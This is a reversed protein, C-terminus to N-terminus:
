ACTSRNGLPPQCCADPGFTLNAGLRQMRERALEARTPDVEFGIGRRGDLGAALLTTGFGCFPDLVRQGPSSFHRVFPRMQEVWGCDRGGFADRSRIYEPLAWSPHDPLPSFWSANDM